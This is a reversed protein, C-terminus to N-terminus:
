SIITFILVEILFAFIVVMKGAGGLPWRSLHNIRDLRQHWHDMQAISSPTPNWMASKYTEDYQYMMSLPTLPSKM